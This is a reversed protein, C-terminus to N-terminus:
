CGEDTATTEITVVANMFITNSKKINVKSMARARNGDQPEIETDISQCSDASSTM